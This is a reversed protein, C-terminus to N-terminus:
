PLTVEKVEKEKGLHGLNKGDLKINLKGANGIKLKFKNKASKSYIEGEKLIVEYAKEDDIQIRLWVMAEAKFVIKHEGAVPAVTREPPPEKKAPAEKKPPASEAAKEDPASKNTEDAPPKVATEAPATAKTEEAPLEIPPATAPPPAIVDLPAVPAVNVPEPLAETAVPAEVKIEEQPEPLYKDILSNNKESYAVYFLGAIMFFLLAYMLPKKSKEDGIDEIVERKYSDVPNGGVKHSQNYRALLDAPDLGLFKAYTKLFGKVFAEGPLNAKEDNELAQLIKLTIRTKESIELLTVGKAERQSKLYEGLSEM